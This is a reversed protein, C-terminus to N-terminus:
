HPPEHKTLIVRNGRKGLTEHVVEDALSRILPLGYGSERLAGRRPHKVEGPVFAPAHDVISIRISDASHSANLQITGPAGAYGHRIINTCLETVALALDSKTAEPTGWNSLVRDLWRRVEALNSLKAPVALSPEKRAVGHDYDAKRTFM